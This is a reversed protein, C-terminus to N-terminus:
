FTNCCYQEIAVLNAVGSKSGLVFGLGIHQLSWLVVQLCGFASIM